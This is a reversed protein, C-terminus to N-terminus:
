ATDYRWIEPLQECASNRVRRWAPGHPTRPPCLRLPVPKQGVVETRGQLYREV